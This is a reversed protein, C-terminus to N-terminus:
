VGGLSASTRQPLAPDTSVIFMGVLLAALVSSGAWLEIQWGLGSSLYAGAFLGLWTVLVLGAAWGALTVASRRLVPALRPWTLEAVVAAVVPGLLLNAPRLSELITQFFAPVVLVVLFTGRPLGVNRILWALAFWTTLSFLLIAGIALAATDNGSSVGSGRGTGGGTTSLATMYQRTKYPTVYMLFFQFVTLIFTVASITAGTVSWSATRFNGRVITSVVTGSMMLLAGALLLLHTPSLLAEISTEIGFVQHWVLDLGGGVGFIAAGLGRVGYGVPLTPLMSQGPVQNKRGIFLIWTAGAIFGSYLLAHWPTFFTEAKGNRHAWGDVFVGAVMWAGCFSSVFDDRRSAFCRAKTPASLLPPMDITTM